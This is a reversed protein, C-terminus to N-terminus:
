RQHPDGKCRTDELTGCGLFFRTRETREKRKPIRHCSTWQPQRPRRSRPMRRQGSQDPRPFPCCSSPTRARHQQVTSRDQLCCPRKTRRGKGARFTSLSARGRLRSCSKRSRCTYPYLQIRKGTCLKRVRFTRSRRLCRHRLFRLFHPSCSGTRCELFTKWM